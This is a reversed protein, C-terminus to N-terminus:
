KMGFVRIHHRVNECVAQTVAESLGFFDRKGGGSLYDKAGNVVAHFSATAINIKRVGLSITKRFDADTIGSGGHLVLPTLTAADIKALVDFALTPATPYDGHANGIAIALADVGTERNFRAASEPDTCRIGLNSLGAESGGVLGLEAELAAGYSDALKRAEKTRRINEEFPLRSADIMVSTFGMELAKKLMEMTQGHDFHVAVDVKASRAAGLMMPGILELPAYPLRGEAIQLIIPTNEEEAARVAGRIMEMSGVSFSGCATGNREARLLLDKMNVLSMIKGGKSQFANRPGSKNYRM